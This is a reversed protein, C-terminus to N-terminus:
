YRNLGEPLGMEQFKIVVSHSVVATNRALALNAEPADGPEGQNEAM